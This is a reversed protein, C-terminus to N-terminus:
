KSNIVSTTQKCNEIESWRVSFKRVSRFSQYLQPHCLRVTEGSIRQKNLWFQTAKPFHVKACVCCWWEGNPNRGAALDVTWLKRMGSVSHRTTTNVANSIYKFFNICGSCVFCYCYLDIQVNTWARNRIRIQNINTDKTQENQNQTKTEKSFETQFSKRSFYSVIVTPLLAKWISISKCCFRKLSNQFTFPSNMSFVAIFGFIQLLCFLLFRFCSVSDLACVNLPNSTSSFPKKKVKNADVFHNQNPFARVECAVSVHCETWAVWKVTQTGFHCVISIDPAYFVM